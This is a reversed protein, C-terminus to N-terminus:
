FTQTYKLFYSRGMVSYLSSTVVSESRLFNGDAVGGITDFVNNVGVQMSGWKASNLSYALDYETYEGVKSGASDEDADEPDIETGGITQARVTLSHIDYGLTLRNNFRYEPIGFYGAQERIEQGEAEQLKYSIMRFAENGYSLRYEGFKKNYNTSLNFARVKLQGLNRYPRSVTSIIGDEDVNVVNTNIDGGSQGAIGNQKYWEDVVEQIDDQKFTNKLDVHYYDAVISLGPLPDFVFGGTYSVGTEPKLKDSGTSDVYVQRSPNAPDCVRDENNERECYLDDTVSYYGGGGEQSIYSLLPAKYSTSGKARFTISDTLGLKAGLGYNTTDGFDNYNDYRVAGDLELNSLLPANFEAFISAVNREGEGKNAFTGTYVPAKKEEDIIDKSDPNQKFEERVASFGFGLSLPGAPLEGLEGSFFVDAMGQKSVEDSNMDSFADELLAADRSGDLLNYEPDTGYDSILLSQLKNKNTINLGNRASTSTYYSLGASMSWFDNLDGDLKFNSGYTENTNIYKRLPQNPMPAMVQVYQVNEYGALDLGASNATDLAITPQAGTFPDYGYGYFTGDDVTNESSSYSLMGSLTFDQIDSNFFASAYTEEKRPVM